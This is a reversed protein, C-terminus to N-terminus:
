LKEVSVRSLSYIEFWFAKVNDYLFKLIRIRPLMIVLVLKKTCIYQTVNIVGFIFM